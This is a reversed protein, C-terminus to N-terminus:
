SAESAPAGHLSRFRRGAGRPEAPKTTRPLDAATAEGRRQAPVRVRITTGEGTASEIRLEGRLLEVRERMGILGLGSTALDLDFGSGDDEVTVTVLTGDEVVEVRAATAAGHKVANTLAEQVIRYIGTELEAVLRTSPDDEPALRVTAAVELGRARNRDLLAMLAPTLGLQDLAAPRLETILARLTTTDTELQELALDVAAAVKEPDGSRRATSLMLRLSGLAQLTEDHLERAWKAREAEAAALRQRRREDAASRATAVATAASAAFSELLAEHRTTFPGGDVRDVAVLVGYAQSRFVLPVVLGDRASLGLQGLGHEEFRARNLPESLRQTQLSRLAGSAVTHAADVSRGILGPPVQGAGAVLQLTDGHLIEIVVARADVLARGRKAVLTLIADVDTEGGLARSIQITADLSSVTQELSRREEESGAFRRAHDIAVAAFEALTVAAQEDEASFRGAGVKETLYLNGYPKGDILIPVGLFSRMAPHGGPFGYSFPHASVDDLRLPRPNRILEGLVGRGTPLKGITRRTEADIGLVQFASLRTRSEDLVGLAAYRAGTVSRASELVRELVADLDLQEIVSRAVTLM